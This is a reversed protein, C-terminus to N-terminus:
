GAAYAARVLAAPKRKSDAILRVSGPARGSRKEAARIDDCVGALREAVRQETEDM